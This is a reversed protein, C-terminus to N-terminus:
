INCAMELSFELLRQRAPKLFQEVNSFALMLSARCGRHYIDPMINKIIDKFSLSARAFLCTADQEAFIVKTPAVKKIFFAIVPILVNVAKTVSVLIIKEQSLLVMGSKPDLFM